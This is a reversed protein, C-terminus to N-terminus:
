VVSLVEATILCLNSCPEPAPVQLVYQCEPDDASSIVVTRDGESILYPGFTATEGYNGTTGDDAIWGSGGNNLATVVAKFEFVDDEIHSPTNSDLCLIDSAVAEIACQESCTTPAEV